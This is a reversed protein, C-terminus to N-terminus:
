DGKASVRVVGVNSDNFDNEDVYIRVYRFQTDDKVIEERSYDSTSTDITTQTMWDSDDPYDKDAVKIYIKGDTDSVNYYVDFKDRMSGLDLTIANDVGVQSSEGTIPSTGAILTQVSSEPDDAESITNGDGIVKVNSGEDVNGNATAVLIYSTGNVDFEVLGKQGAAIDELATGSVDPPLSNLNVDKAGVAQAVERAIQGGEVEARVQTPGTRATTVSEGGAQELQQRNLRILEGLKEDVSTFNDLLTSAWEPIAM